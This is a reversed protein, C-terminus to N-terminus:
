GLRRCCAGLRALDAPLDAYGRRIHGADRLLSEGQAGLAALVLAAGGRLDPATLGAGHLPRGGRVALDFAMLSNEPVGKDKDHLGRHAYDFRHFASFDARPLSPAIAWLWFLVGAAVIGLAIWVAMM